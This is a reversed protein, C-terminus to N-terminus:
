KFFHNEKLLFKITEDTKNCTKKFEIVDNDTLRFWENKADTKLNSYRAHLWQEIRKYNPSEYVHLLRIVNPNGTQLQKIRKEPNNKSIGIKHIEEGHQNVELLLYVYGM